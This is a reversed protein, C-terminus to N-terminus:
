QKKLRSLQWNFKIIFFLLVTFMNFIMFWFFPMGFIFLVAIFLIAYNVYVAWLLSELRIKLIYEDESKEKSFAILLLSVILLVGLINDKILGFLVKQAFIGDSYIAFVKMDLFEPTYCAISTVLGMIASPIFIFWGVKKWKNPFLYNLKM